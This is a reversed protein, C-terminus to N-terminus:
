FCRGNRCRRRQFENLLLIKVIDDLWNPNWSGHPPRPPPNWPPRHPPRPPPGWPPGQPPRPPPGWPPPGQPPRPPRPPPPGWPPGPRGYGVQQGKLVEYIEVEEIETSDCACASGPMFAVNMLGRGLEEPINCCIKECVQNIMVCDPYEDYMPSGPYDMKDCEDSVYGQLAKMSEPYFGYFYEIERLRQGRQWNDDENISSYHM